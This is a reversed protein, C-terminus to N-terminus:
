TKKSKRKPKKQDKLMKLRRLSYSVPNKCSNCINDSCKIGMDAYYAKNACNPPLIKEKHNKHWNLQSIVYGEKLPQKNKTNWENVIKEIGEMTWSLSKLFNILVFLFRKKGDDMGKLGKKICEPWFEMKVALTPLDYRRESKKDEPVNAKKKLADFAQMILQSGELGNLKKPLFDNEIKVNEIKAKSLEFHELESLKLPVSILGKKENVSYPARYLHRSAILVSDIDVVSFPDFKGDIMIEEKTKNISKAIADVDSLDLVKGRLPDRIMDKLYDAVVRVGEPFLLRTEKEDVKEPFAEFPIGVHFGSGGSFKLGINEIDHFKLAEILLGATIKSYEIFKTDVDLICDWGSRIDEQQKRNMGTQLLLPNSWREESIHFSTAGNSALELVDNDFQLVDPRKGFGGEGFKIGVERGKSAEVIKKQVDKRSYFKLIKEDM